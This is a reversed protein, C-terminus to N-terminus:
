SGHQGYPRYQATASERIPSSEAPHLAVVIRRLESGPVESRNQQPGLCHSTVVRQPENKQNVHWPNSVMKGEDLASEKPHADEPTSSDVGHSATMM